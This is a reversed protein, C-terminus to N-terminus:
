QQNSILHLGWYIWKCKQQQRTLKHSMDSVINDLHVLKKMSLNHLYDMLMLEILCNLENRHHVRGQTDNNASRANCWDISPTSQLINISTEVCM